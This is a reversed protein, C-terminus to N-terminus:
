KGSCNTFYIFCSILKRQFKNTNEIISKIVCRVEIIVLYVFGYHCKLNWNYNKLLVYYRREILFKNITLILTIIHTLICKYM